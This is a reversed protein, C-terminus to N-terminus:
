SMLGMICIFPNTQDEMELSYKARNMFLCFIQWRHGLLTLFIRPEMCGFYSVQFVLQHKVCIVGVM